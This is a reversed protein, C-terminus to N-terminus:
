EGLTHTGGRWALLRSARILAITTASSNFIALPGVTEVDAEALTVNGSAPSIPDGAKPNVVSSDCCLDSEALAQVSVYYAPCSIGEPSVLTGGGPLPCIMPADINGAPSGNFLMPCFRYGSTGPAGCSGALSYLPNAKAIWKAVAALQTSAPDPNFGSSQSKWYPNGLVTQASTQPSWLVVALVLASMLVSGIWSGFHRTGM